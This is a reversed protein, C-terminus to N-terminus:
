PRGGIQKIMEKRETLEQIGREKVSGHEGM